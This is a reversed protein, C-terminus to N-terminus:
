GEEKRRPRRKWRWDIRKGDLYQEFEGVSQFLHRCPSAFHECSGIPWGHDRCVQPRSEYTGCRHDPLLAECPTVFEVFWEGDHDVFVQINRHLLYWRVTDYDRKSSPRPIEVAVYRCCQAGCSTCPLTKPLYEEPPTTM